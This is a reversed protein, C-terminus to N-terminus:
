SAVLETTTYSFPPFKFGLLTLKILGPEVIEGVFLLSSAPTVCADLLQALTGTRAMFVARLNEASDLYSLPQGTVCPLGTKSKEGHSPGM